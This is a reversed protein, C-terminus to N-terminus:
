YTRMHTSVRPLGAGRSQWTLTSGRLSQTISPTLLYTRM